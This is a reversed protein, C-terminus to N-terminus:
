PEQSRHHPVWIRTRPRCVVALGPGALESRAELAAVETNERPLFLYAWAARTREAESSCVSGHPRQTPRHEHPGRSETGTVWSGRSAPRTGEPRRGARWGRGGRGLAEGWREAQWWGEGPLGASVGLDKCVSVVARGEQGPRRPTRQFGPPRTLLAGPPGLHETYVSAPTQSPSSSRSGPM